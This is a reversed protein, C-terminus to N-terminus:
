RQARKLASPITSPDDKMLYTRLGYIGDKLFEDWNIDDMNFFFIRKDGEDLRQWLRQVNDNSFHWENTAFYGIIDCFKHIKKYM